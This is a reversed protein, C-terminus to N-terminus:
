VVLQEGSQLVCVALSAFFRAWTACVAFASLLSFSLPAKLGM